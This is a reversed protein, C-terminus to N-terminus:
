ALHLYSYMYIVRVQVTELHELMHIVDIAIILFRDFKIIPLLRILVLIIYM